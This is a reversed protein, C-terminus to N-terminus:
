IIRSKKLHMILYDDETVHTKFGVKRYLHKAKLNSSLVTLYILNIPFKEFCFRCFSHLVETGCKPYIPNQVVMLRGLEAKRNKKDLNYLAINGIYANRDKSLISFMYDGPKNLYRNFWKKQQARSIKNSEFFYHSYFNRLNRLKELDGIKLPRIRFRATSLHYDHNM